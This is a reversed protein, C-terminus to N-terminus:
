GGLWAVLEFFRRRLWDALSGFLTSVDFREHGGCWRAAVLPFGVGFVAEAPSEAVAVAAPESGFDGSLRERLDRGQQLSRRHPLSLRCGESM